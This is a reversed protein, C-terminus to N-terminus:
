APLMAATVDLGAAAYTNEIQVDYGGYIHGILGGVPNTSTSSEFSGVAACNKILIKDGGVTQGSGCQGILGGIANANGNSLSLKADVM